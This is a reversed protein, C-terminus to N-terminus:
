PCIHIIYLGADCRQGFSYVGCFLLLGARETFLLSCLMQDSLFRPASWLFPYIGSEFEVNILFFFNFSRHLTHTQHIIKACRKNITSKYITFCDGKRPPFCQSNFGHKSPWALTLNKLCGLNTVALSFNYGHFVWSVRSSSIWLRGLRLKPARTLLLCFVVYSM